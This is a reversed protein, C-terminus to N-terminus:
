KRSLYLGKVLRAGPLGEPLNYLKYPIFKDIKAVLDDSLLFNGIFVKDATYSESEAPMTIPNRHSDIEKFDESDILDRMWHKSYSYVTEMRPEIAESVQKQRSTEVWQYMEAERKFKVAEVKIGYTADELIKDTRLTGMLHVLKNNNEDFAVQTTSLPVVLSLGEEVSRRMKVVRWENWFLVVMASFLLVFGFCTSTFNVGLRELLSSIKTKAYKATKAKSGNPHYLLPNHMGPADPYEDEDESSNGDLTASDTMRYPFRRSSPENHITRRIGVHARYM